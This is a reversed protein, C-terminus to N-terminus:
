KQTATNRENKTMERILVVVTEPSSQVQVRTDNGRGDLKLTLHGECSTTVRRATPAKGFIKRVSSWTRSATSRAQTTRVENCATTWAYIPATKVQSIVAGLETRTPVRYRHKTQKSLWSALDSATTLDLCAQVPSAASKCTVPKRGRDKAYRQYLTTDVATTTVALAPQKGGSAIALVLEPGGVDSFRDGVTMIALVKDAIERLEKPATDWANVVALASSAANRDYHALADAFQKRLKAETAADQAIVRPDREAELVAVANRWRQWATASATADGSDLASGLKTGLTELLQNQLSDLPARDLEQTQARSLETLVNPNDPPTLSGARLLQEINAARVPEVPKKWQMFAFVVVAILVVSAIFIALHTRGEARVPVPQRLNRIAARMASADVFRQEPNVALARSFFARWHQLEAPLKPVPQETQAIAVSLDDPGEFPRRGTLLEFALVATSYLDSRADVDHGRAQEPSMYGSSGIAGGHSTLRTSRRRMLAAGFDALMPRGHQDFLINAPKIDRHIIDLSHAHVLADLLNELLAIVRDEPVPKSWDDLSGGPLLPMVYYLAGDETRGFRYLDVIHPHHLAALGRAENELREIHGELDGTAGTVVKIAVQRGLNTETASYVIAMGGRGLESQLEYGPVLPFATM